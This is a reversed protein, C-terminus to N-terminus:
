FVDVLRVISRIDLTHRILMVTWIYKWLSLNLIWHGWFPHSCSTLGAGASIVSSRHQSRASTQTSHITLAMSGWQCWWQYWPWRLRKKGRLHTKEHKHFELKPVTFWKACVNTIIKFYQKSCCTLIFHCRICLCSFLLCTYM